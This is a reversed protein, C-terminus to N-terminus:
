QTDSIQNYHCFHDLIFDSKQATEYGKEIKAKIVKQSSVFLVYM